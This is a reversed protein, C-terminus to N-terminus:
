AQTNRIWVRMEGHNRNAWLFYPIAKIKAPTYHHEKAVSYLENSSDARRLGNAELGIAGKLLEDIRVDKFETESTLKINHLGKGNDAEEICYVIPGRKIAVCGANTRVQPNSEMLETTIELILEVTDGNQWKRDIKAYGKTTIPKTDIQKGNVSLKINKCWAPLRLNLGFSTDQQMNVTFKINGEWPYNNQQILTVESQGFTHKITSGIYLHAYISNEDFSYIYQELSALLRAINPPCCSCGFWEQRQTKRHEPMLYDLEPQAELPNAYFFHKGSLGIGSLVGNYLTQEMIDTYRSDKEINVMRQAFFILAISACTEAYARNNQLDYDASFRESEPWSGTGGTIYMRKETINNWLTKCAKLLSENNTEMAVDAMGCYMYLARVAHGEATKQERVPLHAQFYRNTFQHNIDLKKREQDFYIPQKGRQDIFFKALKLYKEEDTTRFLKVLALEIEQHGPYGDTKDPGFRAEIHDAYSCMIDLLKKKGTAQYYAVAAEMMHGACYLEHMVSLNTWRHETKGNMYYSNLYGDDMQAKELQDIYSDIEKELQKDESKALIYAGAEVWKAVDSEWYHHPEKSPDDGPKWSFADIRGTKKCLEYEIPMTVTRNTECRPKWFADKVEIDTLQPTKLKHNKM